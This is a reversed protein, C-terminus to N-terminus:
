EATTEQQKEAAEPQKEAAAEPQKSRRAKLGDAIRETPDQEERDEADENDAEEGDLPYAGIEAEKKKLLAIQLARQPNKRGTEFEEDRALAELVQRDAEVIAQAMERHLEGCMIDALAAASFPREARPLDAVRSCLAAALEKDDTAAAFEALSALEVPGSNAIQQMLRSRRESGLTDRMLMQVPSSYLRAASQVREALAALERTHALRQDATERALEARMGQVSKALISPRDKPSIGRLSDSVQERHNDLKISQKRVLDDHKARNAHVHTLALRVDTPSMWTIGLKAKPTKPM